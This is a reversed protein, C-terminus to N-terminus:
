GMELRLFVMIAIGLSFFLLQLLSNRVAKEKHLQPILDSGAIYIFTGASFPILFVIVQNVFNILFITVVAGALATLATVFNFLLARKRSVGGHILVGFDGMEQPIEHFLIAITTAIGVRIDVAYAAAIVVGDLLNHVADGLLNMYAFAEVEAQEPYHVHRWHIIKEVVFAGAIGCLVFISVAVTFGHEAVTEPLLHIFADGFLSGSSFSVLLIVVYSLIREKLLLLVIGVLSFLSVLVVSALTYFIETGNM